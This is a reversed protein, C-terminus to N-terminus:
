RSCRPRTALKDLPLVCKLKVFLAYRRGSGVTDRRRTMLPARQCGDARGLETNTKNTKNSHLEALSFLLKYVIKDGGGGMM